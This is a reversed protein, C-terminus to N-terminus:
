TSANWDCQVNRYLTKYFLIIYITYKINCYLRVVKVFDQVELSKTQKYVKTKKHEQTESFAIYLNSSISFSFNKSNNNFIYLLPALKTWCCTRAVHVHDSLLTRTCGAARTTGREREWDEQTNKSDRDLLPLFLWIM